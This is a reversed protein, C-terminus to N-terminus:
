GAVAEAVSPGGALAAAVTEPSPELPWRPLELLAGHPLEGALRALEQRRADRRVRRRAAEAAIASGPPLGPPVPLPRPVGNVVVAHAGLPAEERLRSTLERTEALVLPEPLTVVVVASRAPVLLEREVRRAMEHARGAIALEALQGPARLWGLGHGTAPLDVIMPRGGRARIRIQDLVAFARVAAAAQALRRVAFSNMVLRSVLASGFLEEAAKALAEEGTLLERRVGPLPRSRLVDGPEGVEILTPAMGRVARAAALGEAVTTKGVGGKGTVFVVPPLGESFGDM